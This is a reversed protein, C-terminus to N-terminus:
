GYCNYLDVSASNQRRFLKGVGRKLGRRRREKTTRDSVMALVVHNEQLSGPAATMQRLLQLPTKKSKTQVLLAGPFADM